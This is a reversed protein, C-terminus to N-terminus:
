RTGKSALQRRQRMRSEGCECTQCHSKERALRRQGSNAFAALGCSSLSPMRSRSPQLLIGAAADRAPCQVPQRDCSAHGLDPACILIKRQFSSGLGGIYSHSRRLYARYTRFDASDRLNAFHSVVLKLLRFELWLSCHAFPMGARVGHSSLRTLSTHPNYQARYNIRSIRV